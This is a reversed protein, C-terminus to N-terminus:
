KESNTIANARTVYQAGSSMAPSFRQHAALYSDIRPDRLMDMETQGSNAAIQAKDQSVSRAVPAAVNLDSALQIQSEPKTVMGLQVNAPSHTELQNLQPAFVFAFIAAAVGTLAIYSQWRTNKKEPTTAFHANMMARPALVVPEADLKQRFRESFDSSMQIALDDSRLADGIQHYVDWHSTGNAEAYTALMEDLQADTLEGDMLVSIQEQQTVTNM